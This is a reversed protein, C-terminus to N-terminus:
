FMSFCFLCPKLLSFTVVLTVDGDRALSALSEQGFATLVGACILVPRCRRRLGAKINPAQGVSVSLVWVSSLSWQNLSISRCCKQNGAGEGSPITAYADAFATGGAFKPMEHFAFNCCISVPHWALHYSNRGQHLHHLRERINELGSCWELLLFIHIFSIM